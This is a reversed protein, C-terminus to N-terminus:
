KKYYENILGIFQNGFYDSKEKTEFFLRVGVSTHTLDYYYYSLDFGVGSSLHKIWPYWKQQKPNSLEAKWGENIVDALFELKDMIIHKPKDLPNYIDEAKVGREALADEFTKIRDLINGKFTKVGFTNELIRKFWDPSTPFIKIAVDKEVKLTEM